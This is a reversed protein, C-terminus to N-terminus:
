EAASVHSEYVFVWDLTGLTQYSILYGTIEVQQGNLNELTTQLTPDVIQLLDVQRDFSVPSLVTFEPTYYDYDWYLEGTITVYQYFNTLDTFSLDLVDEVTMVMPTQTITNNQSLVNVYSPNWLMAVTGNNDYSSREAIVEIEDGLALVMNEGDFTEYDYDGFDVM